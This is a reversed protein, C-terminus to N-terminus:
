AAESWSCVYEQNGVTNLSGDHGGAVTPAACSTVFGVCNGPEDQTCKQTCSKVGDATDCSKEDIKATPLEGIFRGLWTGSRRIWDVGHTLALLGGALGAAVLIVIPVPLLSDTM